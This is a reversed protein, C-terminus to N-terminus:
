LSDHAEPPDGLVLRAADIATAEDFGKRSLAGLVRRWRAPADLTNSLRQCCAQAVQTARQLETEPAVEQEGEQAGEQPLALGRRDLSERILANSHGKAKLKLALDTATTHDNILSWHTLQAIAEQVTATSYGKAVLRDSLEAASKPSRALLAAADRVAKVLVALEALSREVSTTVM